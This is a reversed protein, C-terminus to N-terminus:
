ASHTVGPSICRRCGAEQCGSVAIREIALADLAAVYLDVEADLGGLDPTGLYGPRSVAIVRHAPLDLAHAIWSGQDFGGLGGHLVLVGPGDGTIELEIPGKATAVIRSRRTISARNRLDALVLAVMGLGQAVARTWMRPTAPRSAVSSVGSQQTSPASYWAVM